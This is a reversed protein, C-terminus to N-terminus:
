WIWFDITDIYAHGCGKLLHICYRSGITRSWNDQLLCCAGNKMTNYTISPGCEQAEILLLSVDNHLVKLRQEKRKILFLSGMVAQAYVKCLKLIYASRYMKRFRLDKLM